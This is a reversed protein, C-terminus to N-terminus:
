SGVRSSKEFFVERDPTSGEDSGFPCLLASCMFIFLFAAINLRLPSSLVRNLGRSPDSRM